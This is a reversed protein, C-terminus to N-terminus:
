LAADGAGDLLVPVQPRLVEAALAVVEALGREDSRRYREDVGVLRVVGNPPQLQVRLEIRFRRRGVRREALGIRLLGVRGIRDLAELLGDLQIRAVLIGLPLELLQLLLATVLVRTRPPCLPGSSAPTNAIPKKAVAPDNDDQEDDDRDDDAPEADDRDDDDLEVGAGSSQPSSLGTTETLSSICSM